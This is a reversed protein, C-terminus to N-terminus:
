DGDGVYRYYFGAGRRNARSPALEGQRELEQLVTGVNTRQAGLISALETTSIRGRARAYDRAVQERSPVRGAAGAERRLATLSDFTAVDIAISPVPAASPTGDIEHCVPHGARHHDALREVAQRSEEVTLQLVPALDAPDTWRQVSLRHLVMLVRLDRRPDPSIGALWEIWGLDPREGALVTRVAVGDIEEIVPLPHGYRIMDAFMRDVGVGQREAIRLTALLQSLDKNRSVPPHNIINDSRVGGYFGGPSTVRLTRGIHEVTTPGEDVWERHAIGNVIAERVAREPLARVRSIVLGQEVHVEPNYARVSTFIEALEELVSRGPENLREESDAAAGPRRIYDLAAARRGAFLLAGANTLTGDDKIVALRRLLDEDSSGALDEARPDGSNQLFDRAIQVAQARAQVPQIGSSQASWDYGWARSRREHWTAPDVDQCQDGVRWTIRNQWRIPEVAPPCRIILVRTGRVEAPYIVTTYAQHLLQFLRVQLWDADLDAGVPTGDNAIGVILAGGGPTNAMCAAEGALKKAAAENHPSGPRVEGHGGRRGAEEKFDFLRRESPNEGSEVARLAAEVADAVADIGFLTM